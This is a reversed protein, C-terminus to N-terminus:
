ADTQDPRGPVSDGGFKPPHTQPSSRSRQECQLAWWIGFLVEADRLSAGTLEEFRALRYRVTNQHVFLRTATREVHMGSALFARLTAILERASGGECLPDLYRRRLVDGVDTDATVAAQLGFADIDYAGHLGCAQVTTLARTALRYSEALRELPAPPGVGAVAAVDRPPAASVFGVLCGDAVTSLAQGTGGHFGLTWELKDPPEAENLMARVAVFEGAPDLGYAQAQIALEGAPVSGALVARVFRARQEGDAAGFAREARRHARVGAAIAIDSWALTSQVFELVTADSIGLRASLARCHAVVMEIGIHWAQLMADVPIGQLARAEGITSLETFDDDGARCSRASRLVRTLEVAIEDELAAGSLVRYAPIHAQIAERVDGAIETLRGLLTDFLLEWGATVTKGNRGPIRDAARANFM